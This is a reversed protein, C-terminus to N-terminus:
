NSQTDKGVYRMMLGLMFGYIAHGIVWYFFALFDTVDPTRNSFSTTLYLGTAIIVNAIVYPTSMQHWGTLRFAYYLVIAVGISVILHLSFDLLENLNFDQMIPIYDINLLLTYVKKGTLHEVLKLILGFITGTIIGIGSLKVLERM